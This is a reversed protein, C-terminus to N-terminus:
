AFAYRLKEMFSAKIKGCETKKTEKFAAKCARIGEKSTNKCQNMANREKNASESCTKTQNNMSRYCDNRVKAAGSVCKGFTMNLVGFGNGTGNELGLGTGQNAEKLSENELGTGPEHIGQANENAAFVLASAFVIAFLLIIAKNM